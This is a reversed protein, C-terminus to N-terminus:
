EQEFAEGVDAFGDGHDDQDDCDHECCDVYESRVDVALFSGLITPVSVVM